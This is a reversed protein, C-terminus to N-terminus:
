GSVLVGIAGAALSVLVLGVPPADLVLDILEFIPASLVDYM